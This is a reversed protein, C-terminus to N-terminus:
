PTDAIKQRIGAVAREGEGTSVPACALVDVVINRLATVARQCTPDTSGPAGGSPPFIPISTIGNRNGIQATSGVTFDIDRGGFQETFRLDACQNFVAVVRDAAAKAAQEDPYSLVAQVLATSVSPTEGVTLRSVGTYGTGDYTPGWPTAWVGRCELPVRSDGTILDSVPEGKAVLDTRTFMQNVEGPVLLLGPLAAPAIAAPPPPTTTTSRPTSSKPVSAKTSSRKSTSSPSADTADDGGSAVVVITVCAAVIVVVAAVIIWLYNRQPPQPAPQWGGWNGPPQNM